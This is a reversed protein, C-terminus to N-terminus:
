ILTALIAGLLMNTGLKKWSLKLIKTLVLSRDGGKVFPETCTCIRMVSDDVM